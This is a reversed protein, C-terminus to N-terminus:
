TRYPIHSKKIIESEPHANIGALNLIKALGASALDWDLNPGVYVESVMRSIDNSIDIEIYPTVIGKRSRFKTEVDPFQVLLRFESEEYFGEDKCFVLLRDIMELRRYHRLSENEYRAQSKAAFFYDQNRKKDKVNAYKEEFDKRSKDIEREIYLDIDALGQKIYERSQELKYNLDGFLIRERPFKNSINAELNEYNFGICYGYGNDAYGRWQSLQDSNKSFCVVFIGEGRTFGSGIPNEQDFLSRYVDLGHKYERSDNLFRVDTAWIKGKTLMGILGNADTYHYITKIM